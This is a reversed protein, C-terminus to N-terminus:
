SDSRYVVMYRILQEANAPLTFDFYITRSDEVVHPLSAQRLVGGRALRVGYARVAIPM